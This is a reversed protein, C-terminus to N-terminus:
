LIKNILLYTIASFFASAPMTLIWAYVVKRAVVWHVASARRVAGVGMISGSIAHTTSVPFGILATGILVLAGATEACFGQYPRLQTIRSSMTKVIRWGGFLTGFSIALYSIIMAWLPVKFEELLGNKFLLITIIGMVKQADNTGHTVSLFFSSFIQLKRFYFNIKEQPFRIFLRIVLSTLVLAVIFAILPSGIMPLIVKDFIAKIKISVLGGKVLAAGVLGGILVHSESCPISFYWTIIDWTMGGILVAIIFQSNVMETNIIGRGITEAVATGFLLGSFNGVSSLVVAQFPTLVKTAVVTSIANAADTFGNWFSFVVCLILALILVLTIM